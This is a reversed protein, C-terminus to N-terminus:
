AILSSAFNMSIESFGEKLQDVIRAKRSAFDVEVQDIRQQAHRIKSELRIAYKIVLVL